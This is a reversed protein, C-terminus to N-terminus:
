TPRTQSGKWTEHGTPVETHGQCLYLNCFGEMVPTTKPVGTSVTYPGTTGSDSMGQLRMSCLRLLSLPEKTTFVTHFQQNHVDTKECANTVLKTRQQLPLRGLQDQRCSKLFSFLKNKDCDTKIQSGLFVKLTSTTLYKINM